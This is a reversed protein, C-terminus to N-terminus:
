LESLVARGNHRLRRVAGKGLHRSIVDVAPGLNPKRDEVNHCDSGLLHIQGRRLLSLAMLSTRRDLFFSANAQVLVPLNELRAPIGFSRLPSIYRDVHAVIPILGQKTYIWELERYLQESWPGAPMEILIYRSDGITLRPLSESDSMGPFFHVEAGLEIKPLSARGAMADRLQVMAADRRALFQDPKDYGAYFHPTAIVREIGQRAEMRLMALSEQVSRSGDDIEPLVHSHFDTLM